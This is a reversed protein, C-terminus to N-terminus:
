LYDMMPATIIKKYDVNLPYTTKKDYHGKRLTFFM